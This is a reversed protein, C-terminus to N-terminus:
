PNGQRDDFAVAEFTTSAWAAYSALHRDPARDHAADAQEVLARAPELAAQRGRELLQDEVGLHELHHGLDEDREPDVVGLDSQVRHGLDPGAAVVERRGCAPASRSRTRGASGTPSASSRSRTRRRRVFPWRARLGPRSAAGPRTRAAAARRPRPPHSRRSRRAAGARSRPRARVRDPTESGRNSWDVEPRGGKSATGGRWMRDREVRGAEAFGKRRFRPRRHM